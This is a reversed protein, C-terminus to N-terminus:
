LQQKKPLKLIPRSTKLSAELYESRLFANKFKVRYSFFLNNYVINNYICQQCCFWAHRMCTYTFKIVTAKLGSSVQLCSHKGHSCSVSPKVGVRVSYSALKLFGRCPHNSHSGYYSTDTVIRWHSTNQVFGGNQKFLTIYSSMCCFCFPCSLTNISNASFIRKKKLSGQTSKSFVITDM